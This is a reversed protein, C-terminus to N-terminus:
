GALSFSPSGGTYSNDDDWTITGSVSRASLSITEGLFTTYPQATITYATTDNGEYSVSDCSTIQYSTGGISVREGPALLGWTADVLESARSKAVLVTVTSGSALKTGAAPETSVVTGEAVEETYVRSISAEYGEAELAAKAADAGQGSVNPVTFAQAVTVTIPNAAKAKTGAEPSVALVTGEEENSKETAVTVNEYGEQALLALADAQQKGLVDPITRSVAVHIVVESGEEARQGSGPDSLLVLGETDDSKVQMARVSFGKAELLYTADAQTMGVTAPVEKGGWLEMRYTAFAAGAAAVLLVALVVAVVKGKGKRGDKGKGRKKKANADPARFEKPGQGEEGEVRPMEMTDGTRWSASPPRYSGDVLMEGDEPQAQPIRGTAAMEDPSADGTVRPVRATPDGSAAEAADHGIPRFDFGDDGDWADGPADPPLAGEGEPGADLDDDDPDYCFPNGDEDVNVGAVDINPLRAPDIPGFGHSPGAGQAGEPAALGAAVAASVSEPLESGADPALLRTGCENCFKATDKNEAQCNPCLM